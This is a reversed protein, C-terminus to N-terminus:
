TDTLSKYIGMIPRGIRSCPFIHVSRLFKYIAWLYMFTSIPVTAACNRKQSYRFTFKTATRHLIIMSTSYVCLLSCYLLGKKLFSLHLSFRLSFSYFHMLTNIDISKCLFVFSVILSVNLLIFYTLLYRVSFCYLSSVM